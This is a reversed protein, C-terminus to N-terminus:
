PAKTANTFLRCIRGASGRLRAGVAHELWAADDPALVRLPVALTAFVAVFAACGAILGAPAPLWRLALAAALGAAASALVTGVLARGRWVMPRLLVAVVAVSIGSALAQAVSNAIAAGLAQMRPVLEIALGVDVVTAFITATLLLRQRGVAYLLSGAVGGLLVLPFVIVMTVLPPGAGAYANSWLVRIAAPGLTLAGATLPISLLLLLRMARMVGIRARENEGAGVLTSVAPFLVSSLGAPIAQLALAASFAISYVAIQASDAYRNLFFFESRRWVVLTFFVEITAVVAYSRVERRLENSRSGRAPNAALAARAIVGAWLLNAATVASEVAFMGTIGGGAKLVAVLAVTGALGTTLGVVSAERFRQLGTLVASPVTQMVSFACTLAAFMWALRLEHRTLAIAVLVGAGLLAGVAEIRWAWAFLDRARDARGQGATVGVFRILATPLGGTFVLTLSLSSWAIFSQRGMGQIGLARAAVVSQVLVLLPPIVSAAARWLGGSIVSSGTTVSLAVPEIDPGDPEIM